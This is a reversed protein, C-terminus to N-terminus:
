PVKANRLGDIYEDASLHPHQYHALDARATDILVGQDSGEIDLIFDDPTDFNRLSNIGHLFNLENRKTGDQCGGPKYQL